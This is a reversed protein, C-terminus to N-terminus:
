SGSGDADEDEDPNQLVRLAHQISRSAFGRWALFRYIKTELQPTMGDRAVQAAFRSAAQVVREEEPPLQGVQQKVLEPDIGKQRLTAAIRANGARQQAGQSHQEAYRSDDQFHNAIVYELAQETQDEPYGRQLLKRRLNAASYDRRALLWIAYSKASREPAQRSQRLESSRSYRPGSPEPEPSTEQDHGAPPDSPPFPPSTPCM